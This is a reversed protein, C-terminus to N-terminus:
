KRWTIVPGDVPNEGSKHVPTVQVVKGNVALRLYSHDSVDGAATGDILQYISGTQAPTQLDLEHKHGALLADFMPNAKLLKELQTNNERDTTLLPAHTLLFIHELGKAAANEKAWDSLWAVWALQRADIEELEGHDSSDKHFEANGWLYYCDIVIFLSNGYVFSYALGKEGYNTPGNTPWAPGGNSV